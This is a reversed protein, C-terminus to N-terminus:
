SDLTLLYFMCAFEAAITVAVKFICIIAPFLISGSAFRTPNELLFTLMGQAGSISAYSSLHLLLVAIVRVINLQYDGYYIPSEFNSTGAFYYYIAMMHVGFALGLKMKLTNTTMPNDENYLEWFVFDYISSAKLPVKKIM